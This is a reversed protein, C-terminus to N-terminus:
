PNHVPPVIVTPAPFRVNALPLVVSSSSTETSPPAPTPSWDRAATSRSTTTSRRRGKAFTLNGAGVTITGGTWLGYGSRTAGAISVATQDDIEVDGVIRGANSIPGISVNPGTSYIAYGNAPSGMGGKAGEITGSNTLAAIVGANRIAAGNANHTSSAGGAGGVIAGSNVLTGIGGGNAVGAGGNFDGGYYNIEGAGGAISGSNTLAGVTGGNAVGSAPGTARPWRDRWPEDPEQDDRPERRRFGRVRLLLM